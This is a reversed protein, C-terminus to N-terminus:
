LDGERKLEARRVLWTPSKLASFGIGDQKIHAEDGFSLLGEHKGGAARIAVGITSTAHEYLRIESTVFAITATTRGSDLDATVDIHTVDSNQRLYEVMEDIHTGLDNESWGIRRTVDFECELSYTPM